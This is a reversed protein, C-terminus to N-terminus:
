KNFMGPVRRSDFGLGGARFAYAAAPDVKPPPVYLTSSDKVVREGFCNVNSCRVKSCHLFYM